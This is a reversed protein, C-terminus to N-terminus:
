FAGLYPLIKGLREQEYTNLKNTFSFPHSFNLTIQLVKQQPSIKSGHEGGQARFGVEGTQPAGWLLFSHRHNKLDAAPHLFADKRLMRCLYNHSLAAMRSVAATLHSGKCLQAGLTSSDSGGTVAM